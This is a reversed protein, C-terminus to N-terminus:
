PQLAIAIRSAACTREYDQEWNGNYVADDSPFLQMGKGKRENAANDWGGFYVGGDAQTVWRPGSSNGVEAEDSEHLVNESETEGGCLDQLKEEIERM